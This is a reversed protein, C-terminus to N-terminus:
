EGGGGDCLAARRVGRRILGVVSGANLRFICLLAWSYIAFLFIFGRSLDLRLVYQFLVVGIIGAACQRFTDRLIVRPHASDLRDYVRIWMGLMLWLLLTFGLLLAKVPVAIYFVEHFTLWDGLTGLIRLWSRTQYAAEFALATLVVDSLGFLM